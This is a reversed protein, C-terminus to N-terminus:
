AIFEWLLVIWFLVSNCASICPGFWVGLECFVRCRTKLHWSRPRNYTPKFHQPNRSHNFSLTTIIRRWQMAAGSTTMVLFDETALSPLTPMMLVVEPAVLLLRIDRYSEPNLTVATLTGRARRKNPCSSTPRELRRGPKLRQALPPGLWGPWILLDKTQNAQVMAEETQNAQVMAEETQNAQVMAEETQNAQVMPRRTLRIQPLM